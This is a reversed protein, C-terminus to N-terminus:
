TVRHRKFRHTNRVYAYVMGLIMIGCSKRDPQSPETIWEKIIAKPFPVKAGTGTHCKELYPLLNPKWANKIEKRYSDQHLPEYFNVRLTTPFAVEVIIVGWHITSLYPPLIVFPTESLWQTPPNPWRLSMTLSSFAVCGKVSEAIMTIGMDIIADNLMADRPIGSSVDSHLAITNSGFSVMLGCPTDEGRRSLQGKKKLMSAEAKKLLGEPIVFSRRIHSAPNDETAVECTVPRVLIFKDTMIVPYQELVNSVKEVNTHYNAWQIIQTMTTTVESSLLVTAFKPQPTSWARRGKKRTRPKPPPLPLVEVHRCKCDGVQAQDCLPDINFVKEVSQNTNEVDPNTTPLVQNVSFQAPEVVSDDSQLEDSGFTNNIELSIKRECEFSALTEVEMALEQDTELEGLIDEYELHEFFGDSDYGHCNACSSINDVGFYKGMVAKWKNTNQYFDVTSLGSLKEIVPEFLAHITAYKKANSLVVM